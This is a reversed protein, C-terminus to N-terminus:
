LDPSAGFVANGDKGREKTEKDSAAQRLFWDPNVHPQDIDSERGAIRATGKELVQGFVVDFDELVGHRLFNGEKSVTDIDGESQAQYDVEASALVLERLLM